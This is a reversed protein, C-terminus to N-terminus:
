IVTSYLVFLFSDTTAIIKNKKSLVERLITVLIVMGLMGNWNGDEDYWGWTIRTRNLTCGMKEAAVTM